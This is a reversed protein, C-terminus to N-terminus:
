PKCRKIYLVRLVYDLLTPTPTPPKESINEICGADMNYKLHKNNVTVPCMKLCNLYTGPIKTYTTKLYDTQFEGHIFKKVEPLQFLFSVM